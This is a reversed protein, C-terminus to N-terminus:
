RYDWTLWNITLNAATDWDSVYFKGYRGESTKYCGTILTSGGVGSIPQGYTADLCDALEIQDYPDSLLAGTAGNQPTFRQQDGDWFFDTNAGATDQFRVAIGDMASANYFPSSRRAFVAEATTRGLADDVAIEEVAGTLLGRSELKEHWLTLAEELNKNDIYIDRKIM